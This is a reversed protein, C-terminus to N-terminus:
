DMPEDCFGCSKECNATMYDVYDHCEGNDVKPACAYDPIFDFCDPSATPETQTTAITTTVDNTNENIDNISQSSDSFTM